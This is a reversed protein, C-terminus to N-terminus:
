DGLANQDISKNISLVREEINDLADKAARNHAIEKKTGHTGRGVLKENIFVDFRMSEKWLDVFQIKLNKKQCFQYLEPVPHNQITDPNIIPELLSRFIQGFFYKYSSLTFYYVYHIFSNFNFSEIIYICM